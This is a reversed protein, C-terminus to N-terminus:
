SKLLNKLLEKAHRSARGRHSIENKVSTTLEALTRGHDPAFFIPDYGFGNSGRPANTITGELTGTCTAAETAPRAIAVVCQFRATWPRPHFRLERLLKENRDQDTAGPGAYRASHVGPAGQLADVELGSDDAWTWLGTLSAYYQAKLVANAAFTNETEAVEERVGIEDLYTLALPLNQLLKGYELLKGQNHTAVLLKRVM